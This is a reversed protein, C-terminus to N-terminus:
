EEKLEKIEKKLKEILKEYYTIESNKSILQFEMMQKETELKSLQNANEQMLQVLEENSVHREIGNEDTVLVNTTQPQNMMMQPINM